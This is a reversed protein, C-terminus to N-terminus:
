LHTPNIYSMEARHGFIDMDIRGQLDFMVGEAELLARQENFGCEDPLSIRGGAGVVRHWPLCHNASMAHLVRVVQRAARPNGAAEAVQGYTMVKGPPIAKIVRIIQQTLPTM